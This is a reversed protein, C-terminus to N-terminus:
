VDILMWRGTLVDLPGPWVVLALLLTELLSVHAGAANAIVEVVLVAALAGLVYGAMRVTGASIAFFLAYTVFVALAFRAALMTPYAHLGTPITVTATALIGGIWVALVPAALLVVGAGFRLLAYHWRPVPLSLAYVHRGRHDPAWALAGVLLALSAGLIPYLIGWAQVSALMTRTQWYGTVSSVRQVSLLPLAFGALVGLLLPFRSWKWQTYLIARFM